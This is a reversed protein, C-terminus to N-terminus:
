DKDPKSQPKHHRARRERQAERRAEAALVARAGAYYDRVLAAVSEYAQPLVQISGYTAHNCIVIALGTKNREDRPPIVQAVGDPLDDVCVVHLGEVMLGPGASEEHSYSFSPHEERTPRGDRRRDFYSGLMRALTRLTKM